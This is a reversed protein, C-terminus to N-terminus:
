KLAEVITEVNHRVMGPYTGEPTGANGMADSYLQGGIRGRAGQGRCGEVLARINRDSVSSEVFVAQSRGIPWSSSWSTSRASEPRARPASGRSAACRWATPGASTALPTTRRSWCAAIRPSRGRDPRPGGSDCNPWSPATGSPTRPSTTPTSPTSVRRPRRPRRRACGSWLAVDFWVHPDVQGGSTQLLRDRPLGEALAVTPSAGGCGSSSTGWRGKWTCAPSSSRTPGRSRRIDGPRRGQVPAPGGGRGDPSSVAVHEGGVHRVLDAVMGTTCVVAIPGVEDGDRSNAAGGCGALALLAAGLGLAGVWGRVPARCM